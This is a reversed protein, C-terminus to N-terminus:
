KRWARLQETQPEKRERCERQATKSSVHICIVVQASPGWCMLIEVGMERKLNLSVYEVMELIDSIPQGM